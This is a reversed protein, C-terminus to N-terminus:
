CTKDRIVEFEEALLLTCRNDDLMPDNYHPNEWVVYASGAAVAEVVATGGPAFDKYILDDVVTRVRDGPRVINGHVDVNM